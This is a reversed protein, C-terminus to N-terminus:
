HGGRAIQIHVREERVLTLESRCTLSIQPTEIDRGDRINFKDYRRPRGHLCQDIGRRITARDIDLIAWTAEVIVDTMMAIDGADVDANIFPNCKGFDTGVSVSNVRGRINAEAFANAENLKHKEPTVGARAFANLLFPYLPSLCEKEVEWAGSAPSPFRLCAVAVTLFLCFLQQRVM